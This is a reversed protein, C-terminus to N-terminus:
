AGQEEVTPQETFLEPRDLSSILKYKPITIENEQMFEKLWDATIKAIQNSEPTEGKRIGLFWRETPSNSDPRLDIGLHDYEEKRINAITGVFCACPGEYSTGDIRGCMLADYLGVAEAKAKSLKEFFDKKIGRLDAGELDAGRLYAGRLDAGELDAGRLDAGELDAGRLDAGELDAGRLYAGRLYAGRLDAGRLYAGRLYAGRLYAGRLDAGRLDAGELDAGRLDAGRLYAGRLYAGELSVRKEVALEVAVKLSDAEFEFLIKANFRAKIEFKMTM